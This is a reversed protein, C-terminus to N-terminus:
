DGLSTSCYKVMIPDHYYHAIRSINKEVNQGKEFDRM